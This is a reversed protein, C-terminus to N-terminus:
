WMNLKSYSRDKSERIREDPECNTSNNIQSEKNNNHVQWDNRGESSM